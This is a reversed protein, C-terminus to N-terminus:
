QYIKWGRAANVVDYTLYESWMASAPTSSSAPIFQPFLTFTSGSAATVFGNGILGQDYGAVETPATSQWALWLRGPPLVLHAPNGQAVPVTVWDGAKDNAVAASQWLLTKPTTDSYIALRLQGKATRSYFRFDQVRAAEPLSVLNAYTATTITFPASLSYKSITGDTTTDYIFNGSPDLMQASSPIEGFNYETKFDPLAAQILRNSYYTLGRRPDYSSQVFRYYGKGRIPDILLGYVGSSYFQSYSDEALQTETSTFDSLRLTVVSYNALFYIQGRLPDLVAEDLINENLFPSDIKLTAVRTFDSLRVKIIQSPYETTFYAYGGASDVVAQSIRNEGTNLTLTGARTMDSLRVKIIIGPSTMTGFYAFGGVSDIAAHEIVDEGANFTFAGVRTLDSLRVKVVKKPLTNGFDTRTTTFYAYQDTSDILACYLNNEDHNLFLTGECALTHANIKVVGGPASFVAYYLYDGKSDIVGRSLSPTFNSLIFGTRSFDSLRVQVIGTNLIWYLKGNLTDIILRYNNTEYSELPHKTWSFDSLSVQILASNTMTYAFGNAVDLVLGYNMDASIQGKEALSAIRGFAFPNLGIMLMVGKQGDSFYINANISDIAASYPHFDSPLTPYQQQMVILTQMLTLDALRVKYINTNQSTDLSSFYAYGNVSDIEGTTIPSSWTLSQSDLTMTPMYVRILKTESSLYAYNGVPDIRLFTLDNMGVSLSSELSLDSLRVKLLTGVLTYYYAYGHVPDISAYSPTQILEQTAVRTLDSLRFKIILSSSNVYAYGGSEDLLMNSFSREDTLAPSTCKMSGMLTITTLDALPSRGPTTNGATKISSAASRAVAALAPAATSLLIIVGMLFRCLGHTLAIRKM